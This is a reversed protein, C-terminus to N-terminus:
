HELELDTGWVGGEGQRCGSGAWSLGDGEWCGPKSSTSEAARSLGDEGSDESSDLKGSGRGAGGGGSDGPEAIGTEVVAFGSRCGIMEGSSASSKPSAYGVLPLRDRM